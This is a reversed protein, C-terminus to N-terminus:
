LLAHAQRLISVNRLEPPLFEYKLVLVLCICVEGLPGKPAKGWIALAAVCVVSIEKFIPKLFRSKLIKVCRDSQQTRQNISMLMIHFLLSLM